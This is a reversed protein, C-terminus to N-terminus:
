SVGARAVPPNISRQFPRDELDLLRFACAQMRWEVPFPELVQALTVEPGARGDLIAEVIGPALTTLRLVRTVYSLTVKEHVALETITAFEGADLMRRWRFARALARVLTSDVRRPALADSPPLISKRGGRKAIRFPVHVTLVDPSYANM